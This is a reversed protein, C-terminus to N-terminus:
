KFKKPMNLKVKICDSCHKNDPNLEVIRCSYSIGKELREIIAPSYYRPVYGLLIGENTVIKIANKDQLNTPEPELYLEGGVKINPLCSCNEGECPAHHRIGMVFFFREINEDAPFIPDIFSYTDIPLRAESKGLLEFEDYEKLGYKELISDIDRRKRDPLRSSFVPFLTQSVYVKEEPFAEIKSWGHLEAQVFDGFYEFSFYDNRSLKGVIYNRRQQPDKWILYLFKM